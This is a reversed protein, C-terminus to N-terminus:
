LLRLRTADYASRVKSAIDSSSAPANPSELLALGLPRPRENGSSTYIGLAGAALAAADRLATVGEPEAASARQAKRYAIFARQFDLTASEYRSFRESEEYGVLAHVDGSLAVLYRRAWAIRIPAMAVRAPDPPANLPDLRVTGTFYDPSPKTSAQSGARKIDM